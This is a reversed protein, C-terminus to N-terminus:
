RLEDHFSALANALLNFEEEMKYHHNGIFLGNEHVKDANPLKPLPAHTLHKMVPNRTFNGAVIPRSAIGHKTLIEVLEPRRGALTKTLILSFGFWSSEGIELQTKVMPFQEMLLAFTEHNERRGQIVVPVKKLQESGIAGELELPRLNYGPLVFRFLDDFQNGSKDLVHNEDPLERTWGHARLSTMVQSLELNSTVSMGGEMTSIHHSFFSSFTGIEGFTGVMKGNLKAGLSECSDEILFIKNADALERIRDLESPNGLLNVAVIGATKNTIAAELSSVSANLTDLDIDVFKLTYGMQTIPYYTTSWSVAPVIVENRTTDEGFSSYRIAGLALLNASSGSNSMVAHPAGFLAAFETEYRRVKVGMTFNRSWIVEQMANIEAEDWTTTALPYKSGQM